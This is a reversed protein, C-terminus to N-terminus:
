DVVSDVSREILREQREQSAKLDREIQDQAKKRVAPDFMSNKLARQIEQAAKGDAEMGYLLGTGGDLRLTEYIRGLSRADDAEDRLAKRRAESAARAAATERERAATRADDLAREAKDSDM